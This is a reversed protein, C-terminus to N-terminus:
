NLFVIQAIVFVFFLLIGMVAISGPTLFKDDSNAGISNIRNSNAPRITKASVKRARIKPPM